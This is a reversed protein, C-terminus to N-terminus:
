CASRVWLRRSIHLAHGFIELFSSPSVSLFNAEFYLFLLGLPDTENFTYLHLVRSRM